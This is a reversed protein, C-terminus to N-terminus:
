HALHLGPGEDRLFYVVRPFLLLSSVAQKGLSVEYSQAGSFHFILVNPSRKPFTSVTFMLDPIALPSHCKRGGKCTM